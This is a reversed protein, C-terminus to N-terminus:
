FKVSCKGLIHHFMQRFCPPCYAIAGFLFFNKENAEIAKWETDNCYCCFLTDDGNCDNSWREFDSNRLGCYDVMLPYNWYKCEDTM